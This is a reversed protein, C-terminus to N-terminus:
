YSGELIKYGKYGVGLINFAETYTIKDSKVANEVYSFFNRDMRFNLNNKYNGGKKRNRNEHQKYEEKLIAVHKEYDSVNIFGMDLQRRVLVFKSVPFLKELEDLPLKGKESFVVTPVLIEATVKNVFSEVRDFKYNKLEVINYIEDYGIFLHVLEHVLTFLQGKKSDKQNIFIIPAQKDALVFGRFEELNLIRHTNDKIKGNLFVFVGMDNIKTRFYDFADKSIEKYYDVNINLYERIVMAVRRYNDTIKFKSIFELNFDVEDKLFDQKVKMEKITDKLESSMGEVESSYIKRFELSEDYPEIYEDLVLLGTPINIMKSITSLQNFTPRKGNELIQHISKIKKEIAEIPTNSNEIYRSLVEPNIDLVETM